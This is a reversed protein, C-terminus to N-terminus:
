GETNNGTSISRNKRARKENNSRQKINPILGNLQYIDLATPYREDASVLTKPGEKKSPDHLDPFRFIIKLDNM